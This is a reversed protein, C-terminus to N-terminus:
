LWDLYRRKYVMLEEWVRRLGKHYPIHLCDDCEDNSPGPPETGVHTGTWTCRCRTCRRTVTWGGSDLVRDWPNFSAM